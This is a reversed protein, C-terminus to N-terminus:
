NKIKVGIGHAVIQFNSGGLGSLFYNIELDIVGNGGASKVEKALGELCEDKGKKLLNLHEDEIKQPDLHIIHTNRERIITSQFYGINEYDVTNPNNSTMFKFEMSNIRENSAKEDFVPVIEPVTKESEKGFFKRIYHAIGDILRKFFGTLYSITSVVVVIIFYNIFTPLASQVIIIISGVTIINYGLTPNSIIFGYAVTVLFLFFASIAGIGEGITKRAIYTEVYGAVLPSFLLGLNWGFIAIKFYLFIYYTALGSLTGLVISVIAKGLNDLKQKDIKM